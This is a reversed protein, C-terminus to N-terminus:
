EAAYLLVGCAECVEIAGTRAMVSRRQLPLATDCNGCSPGRLPFVARDRRRAAIREYKALLPRSVAEGAARRKAHAAGIQEDLAQGEEELQRRADEQEREVDALAQEQLAIAQAHDQVRRAAAHLDSEEDALIRRAQEVQSIAAQADRTKRVAELHSVNREHLQRHEAVRTRLEQERRTEAEAAHRARDLADAAVQRRRELDLRRPELAARKRELERIEADDKQLALLSELEPHVANGRDTLM